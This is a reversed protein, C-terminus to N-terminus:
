CMVLISLTEVHTGLGCCPHADACQVSLCCRFIPALDVATIHTARRVGDFSHPPMEGEDNILAVALIMLLLLGFMHGVRTYIMTVGDIDYEWAYYRALIHEM